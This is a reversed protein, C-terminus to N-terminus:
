ITGELSFPNIVVEPDFPFLPDKMWRDMEADLM